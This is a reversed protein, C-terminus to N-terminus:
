KPCQFNTPLFFFWIYKISPLDVNSFQNVNNFHEKKCVFFTMFSVSVKVGGNSNKDMGPEGKVGQLLFLLSCKAQKCLAQSFVDVSDRSVDINLVEVLDAM